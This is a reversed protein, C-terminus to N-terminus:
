TDRITTYKNIWVFRYLGTHGYLCTYARLIGMCVGTTYMTYVCMGMYAVTYGYVSLYLKGIWKMPTYIYMYM